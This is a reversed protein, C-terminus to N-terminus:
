IINAVKSTLLKRRNGHIRIRSKCRCNRLMIERNPHIRFNKNPIKITNNMNLKLFKCNWINQHAIFSMVTGLFDTKFFLKALINYGVGIDLSLIDYIYVKM